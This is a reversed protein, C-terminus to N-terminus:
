AKLEIRVPLVYNKAIRVGPTSIRHNDLKAEILSSLKDSESYVEIIKVQQKSNIVFHITAKVKLNGLSTFDTHNLLDVLETRLKEQAVKDEIPTYHDALAIFQLGMLLAFVLFIKSVRMKIM